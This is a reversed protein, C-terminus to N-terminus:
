QDLRGDVDATLTCRYEVVWNSTGPTFISRFIWHFRTVESERSLKRFLEDNEFKERQDPVVRPMTGIYFTPVACCLTNAVVPLMSVIINWENERVVVTAGASGIEEESGSQDATRPERSTQGRWRVSVDMYPWCGRMRSFVDCSMFLKTKPNGVIDMFPIASVM